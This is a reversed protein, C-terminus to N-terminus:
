SPSKSMIAERVPWGVSHTTGGPMASRQATSLGISVVSEQLSRAPRSLQHQDGPRPVRCLCALLKSISWRAFPRRLKAPRTTVTQVVFDEDDSSLLRPRGGVRWPDFRALGIENFGHLVDRMTDEDAHVLQFIVPVRNGGASVLLMMGRWYRVASIAGRCAIRQLQQGEQDTM